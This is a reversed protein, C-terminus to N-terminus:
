HWKTNCELDVANIANVVIWFSMGIKNSREVLKTLIEQNQENDNNNMAIVEPAIDAIQHWIMKEKFTALKKNM